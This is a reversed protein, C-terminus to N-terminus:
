VLEVTNMEEDPMVPTKQREVDSCISQPSVSKQPLAVVTHLDM